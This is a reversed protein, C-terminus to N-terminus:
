VGKGIHAPDMMTEWMRGAAVMCSIGNPMTIILTWTAGDESTLVELVAGKNTLGMAIPAEGYKDGLNRLAEARSACNQAQAPSALMAACAAM